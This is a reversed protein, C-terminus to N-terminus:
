IGNLCEHLAHRPNEKPYKKDKGAGEAGFESCLNQLIM